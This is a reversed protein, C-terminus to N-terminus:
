RAWPQEPDDIAAAAGQSVSQWGDCGEEGCDCPRVVRGLARLEGVTVGSREAYAREFEDATVPAV